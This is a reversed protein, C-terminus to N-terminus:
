WFSHCVARMSPARERAEVLAQDGPQEIGLLTNLLVSADEVRLPELEHRLALSERMLEHQLVGLPHQPQVETSRYAGVIRLPAEETAARALTAVLDLADAGAWQLDDLVLLTGAPGAQNALYRGVAAFLLRREQPRPRDWRPMPAVVTEALEPLLRM